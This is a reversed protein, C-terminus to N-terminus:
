SDQTSSMTFFLHGDYMICKRVDTRKTQKYVPKSRGRSTIQLLLFSILPHWKLYSPPFLLGLCIILAGLRPSHNEGVIFYRAECFEVFVLSSNDKTSASADWLFRLEADGHRSNTKQLPCSIDTHNIFVRSSIYPFLYFSLDVKLRNKKLFTAKFTHKPDNDHQFLAQRVLAHLSPLM